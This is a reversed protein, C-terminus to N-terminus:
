DNFLDVIKVELYNAIMTMRDITINVRCNEVKSIYSNDFGLALSLAEKTLGKRKRYISLNKSLIKRYAQSMNWNQAIICEFYLFTM